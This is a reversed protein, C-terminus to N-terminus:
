SLQLLFGRGFPFIEVRASEARGCCSVVGLGFFKLGHAKLDARLLFGRGFPYNEVGESPGEALGRTWDVQELWLRKEESFPRVLSCAFPNELGVRHSDLRQTRKNM